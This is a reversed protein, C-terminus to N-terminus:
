RGPMTELAAPGEGGGAGLARRARAEEAHGAADRPGAEVLRREPDGQALQELEGAAHEATARELGDEEAAGGAAEDAGVLEVQLQGELGGARGAHRQARADHHDNSSVTSRGGIRSRMAANKRSSDQPWHTGQRTPVTRWSSASRAQGVPLRPARDLVSSASSSSIAGAIRSADIQPRPWVAALAISDAM